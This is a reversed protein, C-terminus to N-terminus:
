AVDGDADTKVLMGYSYLPEKYDGFMGQVTAKDMCCFIPFLRAQEAQIVTRFAAVDDRWRPHDWREMGEICLAVPQKGWLPALARELTTAYSSTEKRPRTDSCRHLERILAASPDLGAQDLSVTVLRLGKADLLPRMVREVYSQMADRDPWWVVLAPSLGTELVTMLYDTVATM